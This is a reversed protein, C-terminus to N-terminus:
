CSQIIFNPLNKIDKMIKKNLKINNFYILYDYKFTEM